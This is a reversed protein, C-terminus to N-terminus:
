KQILLDKSEIQEVILTDPSSAESNINLPINSHTIHDNVNNKNSLKIYGFFLLGILTIVSLWIPVWYVDPFIKLGFIFNIMALTYTFRGLYWHLKDYWPIESRNNDYLKDIVFGLTLQIFFLLTVLYGLFSHPDNIVFGTHVNMLVIALISFLLTFSFCMIHCRFWWVGLQSKYFKAIAIAIPPLVVWAIFMFFGHLLILTPISNDEEEEEESFHTHDLEEGEKELESSLVLDFMGKEQKSNNNDKLNYKYELTLSATEGEVEGEIGQIQNLQLDNLLLQYYYTHNKFLQIVNDLKLKQSTSNSQLYVTHNISPSPKPEIFIKQTELQCEFYSVNEALQINLQSSTLLDLNILEFCFHQNLTCNKINPLFAALQTIHFLVIFFRKLLSM